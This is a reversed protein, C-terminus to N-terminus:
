HYHNTTLSIALCESAVGVAPYTNYNYVCVFTYNYIFIQKMHINQEKINNTLIIKVNAYKNTYIQFEFVFYNKIPIKM